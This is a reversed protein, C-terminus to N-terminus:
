RAFANRIDPWWPDAEDIHTADAKLAEELSEEVLNWFEDGDDTGNVADDIEKIVDEYKNRLGTLYVANKL